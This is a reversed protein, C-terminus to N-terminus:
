TVTLSSLYDEIASTDVNDAWADRNEKKKRFYRMRESLTEDKEVSSMYYGDSIEVEIDEIQFTRNGNTYGIHTVQVLRGNFLVYDGVESEMPFVGISNCVVFPRILLEGGGAIPITDSNAFAIRHGFLYASSNFPDETIAYPIYGHKRFLSFAAKSLLIGIEFDQNIFRADYSLTEEFVENLYREFEKESM